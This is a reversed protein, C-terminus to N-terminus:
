NASVKVSNWINPQINNNWINPGLIETIEHNM